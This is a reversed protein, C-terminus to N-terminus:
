SRARELNAPAAVAMLSLGFPLRTRGVLHRELSFVRSLIANAPAPPMRTGSGMRGSLREAARAVVALPFLLTNFHCARSVALGAAECTNVLTSRTYRRRHHFHEDHPGWMWPYAPVTLLLRGRPKLLSKLKALAEGDQPIHELVDFLCVLDFQRGLCDLDEPCRGQLLRIGERPGLSQLALDIAVQEMELGTVRGFSALLALNAGTGSGVELIEADPPLALRCLQEHLIRRRAVYWWHRDQVGAMETYASPNM